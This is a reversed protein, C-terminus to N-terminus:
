AIPIGSILMWDVFTRNECIAEYVAEGAADGPDSLAILDAWAGAQISGLRGTLGLARAPNLTVTALRERASLALGASAATAALARLRPFLDLSPSSALSDTGLCLNVDLEWLRALPFEPHGFFFHSLPCHVVSLGHLPGGPALLAFDAENLANLHVAICEPGLAGAATLTELASRGAGCDDMPRGLKKLFDHLPGRAHRFMEDEDASECLHTTWPLGRARSCDRTLRYLEASATYPAHPSLGFGGLWDSREDFFALAGALLEDTVIRQRVDIMEYFWWTRLPPPPLRPLLEPFAEINLITTTGWRRAERFGAAIAKLYDDADLERKLANIRGIWETFSRQPGIANRMTSYDLHCHANILGPLLIREGLDVVDESGFERRVEKWGCAAAISDGRVVVAGDTVPPTTMTVLTRARYLM